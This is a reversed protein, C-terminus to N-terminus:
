SEKTLMRLLRRRLRRLTRSEPCPELQFAFEMLNGTPGCIIYYGPGEDLLLAVGGKITDCEGVHRIVNGEAGDIRYVDM